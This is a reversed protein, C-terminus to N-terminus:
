SSRNVSTRSRLAMEIAMLRCAIMSAMKLPAYVGAPERTEGTTAPARSFGQPVAQSYRGSSARRNSRSVAAKVAAEREPEVAAGAV